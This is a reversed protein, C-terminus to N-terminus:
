KGRSRRPLPRNSFDIQPLLAGPQIGLATALKRVTEITASRTAGEIHTVATRHLGAAAALAEQSLGRQERIARVQLGFAKVYSSKPVSAPDM